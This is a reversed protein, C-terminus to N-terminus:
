YISSNKCGNEKRGTELEILTVKDVNKIDKGAVIM